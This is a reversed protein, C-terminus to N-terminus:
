HLVEVIEEWDSPRWLHYQVGPCAELLERWWEQTLTLRGNQRKLEAFIVRPPRVLALDPFGSASRQSDFTHYIRWGFNEAAAKVQAMHEKETMAADITERADLQKM